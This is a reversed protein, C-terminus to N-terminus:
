RRALLADLETRDLGTADAIREAAAAARRTLRVGGSASAERLVGLVIALSAADPVVRALLEARLVRSELDDRSALAEVALRELRRREGKTLCAARVVEAVLPAVFVYREGDFVVLQHRELAPLMREVDAPPREAVQAILAIDLGLGGISAASLVAQEDRTLEGVRLEVAHRVVDPVSFPLPTTITSDKPPWTSLDDRLRTARELAGLLTVAFLPNGGTEFALRRTLRRRKTDEDCWTAWATVLALLDEDGLPDLRVAVGPLGRQVDALLQQLEFPPAGVGIAATVVFVLRTARLAGIAAHLAALSPGDAWHADDIAVVLPKEDAVAALAATLAAAVDAVDRPERPAVRTGLEPALWALVALAEPRAAPLGPAGALGGHLLSRLLSWRADHDQELPRAVLSLALDHTASRVCEALVRSRGMGPPATIAITRPAGGLAAALTEFVARYAAQRGVLPPERRVDPAPRARVAERRIQEAVAVLSKSPEEHVDRKLLDAFEHYAALAASPDGALALARMVVRIAPEAHPEIELARRGCDVAAGYRRELLEDDGTATLATAAVGALTRREASVWAEFDPAEDVYWGELFPGRYLRAADRPRQKATAVFRLADVDLGEHELVLAPGESRLREEGLCRRLKRLTENLNQRARDQSKEAWFLGVLHERLRRYDPSLALYALLAFPKRWLVEAPAPAGALTATPAGLCVLELRPLAPMRGQANRSEGTGDLSQWAM